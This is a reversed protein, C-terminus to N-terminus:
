RDKVYCINTFQVSIQKSAHLINRGRIKTVRFNNKYPLYVNIQMFILYDHVKTIARSVITVIEHITENM